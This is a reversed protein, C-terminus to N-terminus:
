FDRQPRGTGGRTWPRGRGDRGWTVGIISPFIPDFISRPSVVFPQSSPPHHIVKKSSILKLLFSAIKSMKIPIEFGRAKKQGGGPARQILVSIKDSFHFSFSSFNTLYHFYVAVAAHKQIGRPIQLDILPFLPPKSLFDRTM